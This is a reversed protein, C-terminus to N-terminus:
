FFHASLITAEARDRAGASNPFRGKIQIAFLVGEKFSAGCGAPSFRM